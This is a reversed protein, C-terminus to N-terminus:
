QKDNTEPSPAPLPTLRAQKRQTPVIIIDNRVAMNRRSRQLAIRDLMTVPLYSMCVMIEIIKNKVIDLVTSTIGRPDAGRTVPADSVNWFHVVIHLLYILQYQDTSQGGDIWSRWNEQCFETWVPYYQTFMQHTGM